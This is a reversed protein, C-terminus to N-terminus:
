NKAKSKAKVVKAEIVEEVVEAVTPAEHVVKTEYLKVAGRQLYMKAQADTLEVETDKPVRGLTDVYITTLTIVKM